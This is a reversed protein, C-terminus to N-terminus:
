VIQRLEEMAHKVTIYNLLYKVFIVLYLQM